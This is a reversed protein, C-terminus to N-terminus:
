QEAADKKKGGSTATKLDFIFYDEVPSGMVRLNIKDFTTGMLSAIKIIFDKNYIRAYDNVVKLSVANEDNQSCPVIAIEKTDQSLYVQVYLTNDLKGYLNKSLFIGNKSIVISPVGTEMKQLIFRADISM